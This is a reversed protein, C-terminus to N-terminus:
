GEGKKDQLHKYRREIDVIEKYDQTFCIRKSTRFLYRIRPQWTHNSSDRRIYCYNNRSTSYIRYGKARASKLFSTDEGLSRNQFPVHHIVSKKAVITGGLVKKVWKYEFGFHRLRLERTNSFYIYGSWKGVIDANTEEFAKLAEALFYSGYHDDDDWKAVYKYKAKHTGYNLCSGLSTKEPLQYVQVNEYHSAREKWEELKLSDSNLIIILEKEQLLQRDYNTFINDMFWHKNTCAVISIGHNENLEMKEEM